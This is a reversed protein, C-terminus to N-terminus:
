KFEDDFELTSVQMCDKSEIRSNLFPFLFFVALVVVILLFLMKPLLEAMFERSVLSVFSGPIRMKVCTISCILLKMAGSVFSSSPKFIIPRMADSDNSLAPYRRSNYRAHIRARFHIIKKSNTWSIRDDLKRLISCSFSTKRHSNLTKKFTISDPEVKM